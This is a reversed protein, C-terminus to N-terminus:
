HLQPLLAVKADLPYFDLIIRSMKMVHSLVVFFKEPLPNSIVLFRAGYIFTYTKHACLYQSLGHFGEM